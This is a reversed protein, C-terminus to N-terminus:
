KLYDIYKTALSRIMITWYKTNIDIRRIYYTYTQKIRVRSLNCHSGSRDSKGGIERVKIGPKVKVSNTGMSCKCRTNSALLSRKRKRYGPETDWKQSKSKNKVLSATDKRSKEGQIGRPVKEIKSIYLTCAMYAYYCAYSSLLQRDTNSMILINGHLKRRM